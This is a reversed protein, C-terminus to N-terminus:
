MTWQTSAVRMSSWDLSVKCFHQCECQQNLRWYYHSKDRDWFDRTKQWCLFKSISCFILGKVTRSVKYSKFISHTQEYLISPLIRWVQYVWCISVSMNYGDFYWCARQPACLHFHIYAQLGMLLFEIIHTLSKHKWHINPIDWTFTGVPLHRVYSNKAMLEKIGTLMWQYDVDM